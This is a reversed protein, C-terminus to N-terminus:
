KKNFYKIFGDIDNVMYMKNEKGNDDFEVNDVFIKKSIRKKENKKIELFNDDSFIEDEFNTVSFIIYDLKPIYIMGYIGGRFKNNYFIKKKNAVNLGYLEGNNSGIYINQRLNDYAIATVAVYYDNNVFCKFSYKKDMNDM